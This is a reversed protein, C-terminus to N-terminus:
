TNVIYLQGSLVEKLSEGLPVRRATPFHATPLLLYLILTFFFCLFLETGPNTSQTETSQNLVYIRTPGVKAVFCRNVFFQFWTHLFCIQWIISSKFIYPIFYFTSYSRMKILFYMFLVPVYVFVLLVYTM